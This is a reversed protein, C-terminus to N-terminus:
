NISSSNFSFTLIADNFSHFRILIICNRPESSIIRRLHRGHKGKLCKNLEFGCRKLIMKCRQNHQYLTNIREDHEKHIARLQENEDILMSGTWGFVLTSLFFVVTCFKWFGDGIWRKRPPDNFDFSM